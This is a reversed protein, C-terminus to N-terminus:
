SRRTTDTLTAESVNGRRVFRNWVMNYMYRLWAANSTGVAGTDPITFVKEFNFEWKDTVTPVTGTGTMLFDPFSDWMLRFPVYCLIFDCYANNMVVAKTTDSFTQVEIKGSLTDGPVVELYGLPTMVGFETANSVVAGQGYKYRKM